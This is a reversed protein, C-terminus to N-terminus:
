QEHKCPGAATMRAPDCQCCCADQRPRGDTGGSGGNRDVSKARTPELCRAAHSDQRCVAGHQKLWIGDVRKCASCDLSGAQTAPHKVSQIAGPKFQGGSTPCVELPKMFFYWVSNLSLTTLLKKAPSPPAFWRCAILAHQPGVRRQRVKAPRASPGRPALAKCGRRAPRSGPTPGRLEFM